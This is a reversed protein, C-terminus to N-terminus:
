AWQLSSSIRSSGCHETREERWLLVCRHICDCLLSNKPVRLVTCEGLKTGEKGREAGVPNYGGDTRVLDSIGDSKIV